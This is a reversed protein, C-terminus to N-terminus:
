VKGEPEQWDESTNSVIMVVLEQEEEQYVGESGEVV